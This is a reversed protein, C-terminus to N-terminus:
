RVRAAPTIIEVFQDIEIGFARYVACFGGIAGDVLRERNIELPRLERAASELQIAIMRVGDDITSHFQITEIEKKYRQARALYHSSLDPNIGRLYRAVTNRNAWNPPHLVKGEPRTLLAVIDTAGDQVASNLPITEYISADLFRDGGCSVPPGAFFPIRASCRLAEFLSGEDPFEKLCVSGLKSISTCVANLPINSNLVREVALPREFKCVHDLLFELSVAPLGRLLRQPNIFNRNNLKDYFITTGYRAQRAIFYAGTIAGASSGYIVDFSDLLGLEELAAVMGASVVGRMGGGEIALAVKRGDTRALPKSNKSKRELLLQAVKHIDPTLDNEMRLTLPM